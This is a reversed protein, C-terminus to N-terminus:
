VRYTKESRREIALIYKGKGSVRYIIRVNGKRVRFVDERGKLKKINLGHFDGRDLKELIARVNKREKATLKALEKELEPM